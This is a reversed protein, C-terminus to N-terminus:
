SHRRCSLTGTGVLSVSISWSRRQGGDRGLLTSLRSAGSRNGHLVGLQVRSSARSHRGHVSSSSLSIGGTNGGASCPQDATTFPSKTGGHDLTARRHTGSSGATKQCDCLRVCIDTMVAARRVGSCSCVASRWRMSSDSGGNQLLVRMVASFCFRHRRPIPVVPAGAACSACGVAVSTNSLCSAVSTVSLGADRHSVVSANAWSTGTSGLGPLSETDGSSLKM